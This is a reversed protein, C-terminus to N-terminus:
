TQAVRRLWAYAEAHSRMRVVPLGPRHAVYDAVKGAVLATYAVGM